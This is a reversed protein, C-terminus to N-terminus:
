NGPLLGPLRAAPPGEDRPSARAMLLVRAILARVLLLVSGM